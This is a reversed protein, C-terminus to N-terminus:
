RVTRQDYQFKMEPQDRLSIFFNFAFNGNPSKVFSFTARWRHLTRDLRVVHQGFEKQTINYQTNWSVSWNQTPSFGIQLGVNRRPPTEKSEGDVIEPRTRQEDYTVSTRFAGGGAPGGRLQDITPDLTRPAGMASGVPQLQDQPGTTPADEPEETTEGGTILAFINKFTAGSLSFRASVSRLFPDFHTSDYGVQGDWLDHSISLSFGRLLDSTFQNSLTATQWGNRGPEKAQEFDYAVSSTQISLLKIKKANRPDSTTDGPPPRLKGEFTQNLGFSISHAMPSRLQPATGEPAIARAYEEPVDAAPALSWRVSFSVSHRIRSLPGVGPFFGFVTPSVSAGFSARKGQQVFAGGTQRNRIMFPGSTTNQIGLTPQLKWTSPFLIPLNIGTNWDVSTSFDEGYFVTTETSDVPDIVTIGTSPRDTRFDSVSFDNRWNWQGIRLPTAMRLQITQEDPFVTDIIAAAGAARQVEIGPYQNLRANRNLSFSPSWTVSEGFNIPAPSLSFSPLTQTITKNSLDQTLSGGLTLTGWSYQKSFNVRSGLTATQVLPDVSNREIVRASTAYDVNASLRTRQNFSQAHSWQLRLSRSGPQGEIGEEFVRSLSLNGRVFRNLWNYRLQGNLSVYNGSFWDVSAQFDLYDNIAFYYGINSVHRRYGTNPRVLDNFGFRPILIGSRRGERMDQWIFPLWLVPVDRVYLVAPRAVMVNNSVWKVNYASFHFHPNPQNCTTVTTGAGYLRTSASDVAIEGRLYWDVGMQNFKTIAQAVIGTQVCTDYSMGGTGVLVTERDFLTPDGGALLMCDAQFFSVSDAELISGEREILASGRLQIEDTQSFLTLSDAAYRTSRYGERELLMQIISDAQPFARSPQTPLGLGRAVTTDVAQPISDSAQGQQPPPRQPPPDQATATRVAAGHLLAVAVVGLAVSRWGARV